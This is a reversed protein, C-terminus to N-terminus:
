EDNSEGVSDELWRRLVSEARNQQYVRYFALLLAASVTFVLLVAGSWALFELITM